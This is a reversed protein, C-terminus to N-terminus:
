KKLTQFYIRLAQFFCGFCHIGRTQAIGTKKEFNSFIKEFNSFIIEFKSFLKEFKSVVCKLRQFVANWVKFFAKEFNPVARRADAEVDQMGPSWTHVRFAPTPSWPHGIVERPMKVAMWVRWFTYTLPTQFRCGLAFSFGHDQAELSRDLILGSKYTLVGM